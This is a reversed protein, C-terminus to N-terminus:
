LSMGGDVIFAQGTLFRAEHSALYLAAAAIEDASGLRGMPQRATFTALAQQANGTAAMREQLSPTDTTGPCLANCRIGKGIFDAAISKSLGIVAAKSAGYALRNPAGKVSSVVSAMNIISGGGAALMAPLFAKCTRFMAGANVDFALSWDEASCDLISGAHVIGACNFLIHATGVTHALKQIAIGDRVDLVHTRLHPHEARLANLLDPNRDTAWVTAGADAFLVATARGIGQAAGTIVATKGDLRFPMPM